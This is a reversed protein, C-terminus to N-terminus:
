KTNKLWNILAKMDSVFDNPGCVYFPQNFDSVISKLLLKDIRGSHFSDLREKTLVAMYRDGLMSKLESKIILDDKAKVSHILTIGNTESERKLQRFVAIFPTIGQGGAIFVGPKTYRFSGFMESLVLTDGTKMWHIKETISNRNPYIKIYFELYNDSNTSTFSFPHKDDKANPLSVMVSHGPVFSFGSPKELVIRKVRAAAREIALIKLFYEM